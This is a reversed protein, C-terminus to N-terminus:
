KQGVEPWSGVWKRGVELGSGARYITMHPTSALNPTWFEFEYIYM